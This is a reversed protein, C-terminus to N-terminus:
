PGQLGSLLVQIIGRCSGGALGTTDEQRSALFKPIEIGSIWLFNKYYSRLYCYMDMRVHVTYKEISYRSLLKNTLVPQSLVAM